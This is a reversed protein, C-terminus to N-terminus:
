RPSEAAPNGGGRNGSGAPPKIGAAILKARILQKLYSMARPNNKALHRYSTLLKNFAAQYKVKM